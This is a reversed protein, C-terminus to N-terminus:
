HVTNHLEEGQQRQQHLTGGIISHGDLRGSPVEAEVGDGGVSLRAARDPTERREVGVHAPTWLVGM